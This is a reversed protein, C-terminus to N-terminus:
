EKILKYTIRMTQAPTKEVPATLNNITMLPNPVVNVYNVTETANGSTRREVGFYLGDSSPYCRTGISTGPIMTGQSFLSASATDLYKVKFDSPSACQLISLPTTTGASYNPLNGKGVFAVRGQISMLFPTAIQIVQVGVLKTKGDVTQIKKVDTNDNLNIAYLEAVADGATSVWERAFLYGSSVGFTYGAGAMAAYSARIALSVGTTNTVSLVENEFTELNIKLIKIVNGSAWANSESQENSPLRSTVYLYHGDQALGFYTGTGFDAPLEFTIAEVNSYGHGIVNLAGTWYPSLTAQPITNFIDAEKSNLSFKYFLAQGLSFRSFDCFILCDNKFDLYVPVRGYPQPIDAWKALIASKIINSFPKLSANTEEAPYDSGHGIVGGCQTTLCISNIVGNAQEATFDWVYTRETEGTLISQNTNFSGMSLDSGAYTIAGGHGVMKATEPPFYVAANDDFKESFLLMGKMLAEITCDGEEKFVMTSIADQNRLIPQCIDNLANTIFNDDETVSVEGTNIDTLEIITKGKM